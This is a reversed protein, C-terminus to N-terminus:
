RLRALSVLPPIFLGRVTGPPARTVWRPFIRALARIRVPGNPAGEGDRAGREDTRAASGFRCHATPAQRADLPQAPM